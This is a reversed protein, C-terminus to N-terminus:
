AKARTAEPDLTARRRRLLAVNALHPACVAHHGVEVPANPEKRSRVCELFNAVHPETPIGGKYEIAV